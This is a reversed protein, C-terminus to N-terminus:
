AENVGCIRVAARAHCREPGIDGPSRAPVRRHRYVSPPCEFRRRFARSFTEEYSYGVAMGILSAEIDRHRLLVDAAADLRKAEIYDRIGVGVIRRFRTSINHNHIACGARVAAANLMPDFLHDHIYDLVKGVQPPLDTKASRGAARITDLRQHIRIQKEVTPLTTPQAQETAMATAIFAGAAWVWFSQGIGVILTGLLNSGIMGLLVGHIRRKPGRWVSLLLGGIVGGLGNLTLVWGLLQADEGTRALIMPTLMAGFVGFLLNGGTFVYVVHLMPPRALVYKVGAVTDQWVSGRAEGDATAKPQPIVLLLLTGAAVLFTAVDVVLIGAIDIPGILLGALMPALVPSGFQAMTIMGNAQTHQQKPVMMTVSAMQAPGQFSEAASAIAGALYIMWLQVTGTAFVALLVMSMVGAILDAVIMVRKRNWRDVLTGALPSILISPGVIFFWILAVATVSKTNNWVWISMAFRTMGTGVLSVLQGISLVLVARLGAFGRGSQEM